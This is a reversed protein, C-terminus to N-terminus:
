KEGSTTEGKKVADAAAAKRKMAAAKRESVTTAKATGTNAPSDDAVGEHKKAIEKGKLVRAEKAKAKEAKTAKQSPAAKAQEPDVEGKTQAFAGGALLSAIAVSLTLVVKKM